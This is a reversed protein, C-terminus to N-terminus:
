GSSSRGYEQPALREEDQTWYRRTVLGVFLLVIGFGGNAIADVTTLGRVGWREYGLGNLWTMHEIPFNGASNLIAYGSAAAHKRPGLIDLVMATFVAYAFGAAVAYGSYGVAYTTPTAPAFGLYLAFVAALGGALAYSPMRGIKDAVMGGLFCGLASLLGGGVGTVWLVVDGSAHFDPGMGSILNVIAASGVPSLLFILGIWTRRTQFLDKMDVFLDKMHPGLKRAIPPAEEILLAALSPLLMMAATAIALAPLSTHDALWIFLGGGIATGGLNGAQYWGSARGRLEAPISTMLAGCSSSLLGSFANMLFLLPTLLAQSGHVGLIAACSAIGAAFASLIAWSRRRMGVDALPSWLFSWISPLSAIVVINAIQDVSFGYKRLLYPMLVVTVSTTFAYPLVLILFLAPTHHRTM